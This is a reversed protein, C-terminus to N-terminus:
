FNWSVGLTGAGSLNGNFTTISYLEGRLGFGMINLYNFGVGGFMAPNYASDVGFGLTAYYNKSSHFIKNVGLAGKAFLGLEWDNLGVRFSGLGAYNTNFGAFVKLKAYSNFSSLIVLLLLTKKVM